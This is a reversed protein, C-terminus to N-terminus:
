GRKRSAKGPEASARRQQLKALTSDADLTRGAEIDALGRRADDIWLLHIRARELRHDDDLRDADIM